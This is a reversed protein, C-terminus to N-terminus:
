PRKKAMIILVFSKINFFLNFNNSHTIIDFKNKKLKEKELECLM